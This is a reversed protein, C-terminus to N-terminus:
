NTPVWFVYKTASDTYGGSAASIARWYDGKKVPFSMSTYKPMEVSPWYSAHATGVTTTPTTASDTKGTMQTGTYTSSGSYGACVFGDTTARYTTNITKTEIAGLEGQGNDNSINSINGSADNVFSGLKKYYTSSDPASANLSITFTVTEADADALAYIYYTTSDAEVGTDIDAWGVSTSSTNQRFKKISGASNSCVVEGASISVATSSSYSIVLGERYNALLRDIATNNATVATPYDIKQDTSAPRTKLWEDACYSNTGILGFCLTLALVLNLYKM